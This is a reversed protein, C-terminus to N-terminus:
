TKGQPHDWGTCLDYGVAAYYLNPSNSWTNNGNTIDHFCDTYSTGLAIGYLAPTLLVSHRSARRLQRSIPWHSLDLGCRRQAAPAWGCRRLESATPAWYLAFSPVQLRLWTLCMASAVPGVGRRDHQSAKSLGSRFPPKFEARVAAISQVATRTQGSAGWVVESSWAQGVGSMTLSTGGVQTMYPQLDYVSAETLILGMPAM